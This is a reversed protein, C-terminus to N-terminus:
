SHIRTCIDGLQQTVTLENYKINNEICFRKVYPAIKPLQFRSVSPFLHHEIQYNHGGMWFSLLFQRLSYCIGNSVTTNRSNLIQYLTRNKSVHLIRSHHFLQTLSMHFSYSAIFTLISITPYITSLVINNIWIIWVIYLVAKERIPRGMGFAVYM